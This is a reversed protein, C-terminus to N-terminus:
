HGRQREQSQHGTQHRSPQRPQAAFLASPPQILYATIIAEMDQPRRGLRHTATRIIKKMARKLILQVAQHSVGLKEAIEEYTMFASNDEKVRVKPTPEFLHDALRHAHEIASDSCWCWDDHDAM